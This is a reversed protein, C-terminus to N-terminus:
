PKPNSVHANLHVAPLIYLIFATAIQIPTPFPPPAVQATQDLKGHISREHPPLSQDELLILILLREVDTISIDLRKAFFSFHVRSFAPSRRAYSAQQILGTTQSKPYLITHISEKRLKHLLDSVIGSFFPNTSVIQEAPGRLAAQFARM